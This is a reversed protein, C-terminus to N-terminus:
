EEDDEKLLEEDPMGELQAKRRELLTAIIQTRAHEVRAQHESRLVDLDLGPLDEDYTQELEEEYAALRREIAAARQEAEDDDGGDEDARDAREREAISSNVAHGLEGIMRVLQESDLYFTTTEGIFVRWKDEDDSVCRFEIEGGPTSPEDGTLAALACYALRRADTAHLSVDVMEGFEIRVGDADEYGKINRVDLLM